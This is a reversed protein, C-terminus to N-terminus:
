AAVAQKEAARLLRGFADAGKKHARLLKDAPIGFVEGIRGMLATSPLRKGARLRSAMSHSCGILKGLEENTM